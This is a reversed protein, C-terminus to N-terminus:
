PISACADMDSSGTGSSVEDLAVENAGIHGAGSNKTVRGITHKNFHTGIGVRNASRRRPGPVDDGSVAVIANADLVGAGIVVQYLAVVNAGIGCSRCGDTVGVVSDAKLGTCRVICDAAGRRCRPVDDGAIVRGTNVDGARGCRAVQNLAVIDTRVHGARSVETVRKFAHQDPKTGLGVDDSGIAVADGIVGFSVDNGSVKNADTDGAVASDHEEVVAIVTESGDDSLLLLEWRWLNLGSTVGCAPAFQTGRLVFLRGTNDLDDGSTNTCAEIGGPGDLDCPYPILTTCSLGPELFVWDSCDHPGGPDSAWSPIFCLVALVVILTRM